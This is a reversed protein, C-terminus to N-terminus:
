FFDLRRLQCAVSMGGFIGGAIPNVAGAIAAETGTIISCWGKDPPDMAVQVQMFGPTKGNM